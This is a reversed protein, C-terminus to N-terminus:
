DTNTTMWVGVNSTKNILRASASSKQCDTVPLLSQSASDNSCVATRSTPSSVPMSQAGPELKYPKGANLPLTEMMRMKMVGDNMTMTHIEVSGASPSEVYFLKSYESSKLTMYAASIDQGPVTERAWADSVKVEAQVATTVLLL